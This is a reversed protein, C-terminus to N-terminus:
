VKFLRKVSRTRLAQEQGAFILGETEKKLYGSKIWDFSKKMDVGELEEVSTIFKGHLKKEKWQQKQEAEVRKRISLLRKRKM